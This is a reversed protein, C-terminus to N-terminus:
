KYYIELFHFMLIICKKLVGKYIAYFYYKIVVLLGVMILQRM